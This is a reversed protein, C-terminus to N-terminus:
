GPDVEVVGMDPSEMLRVRRPRLRLVAYNPDEPGSVYSALMPVKQFLLHKDATERSVACPGAIRVNRGDAAMFCVEARSCASLDAVKSSALATAMWLEKDIWAWGGMPRVEARRGNTTALFGTKAENTLTRVKEM